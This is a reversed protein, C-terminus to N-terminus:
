YILKAAVLLASPLFGECKQYVSWYIFKPNFIFIRYQDVKDWTSVTLRNHHFNICVREGLIQHKSLMFSYAPHPSHVFLNFNATYLLSFIWKNM